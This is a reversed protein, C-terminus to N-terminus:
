SREKRDGVSGSREREGRRKELSVMTGMKRKRGNAEATRRGRERATGRTYTCTPNRVRVSENKYITGVRKGPDGGGGHPGSGRTSEQFLSAGWGWSRIFM